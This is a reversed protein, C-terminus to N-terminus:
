PNPAAQEKPVRRARRASCAFRVRSTSVEDLCLDALGIGFEDFQKRSGALKQLSRPAIRDQVTCGGFGHHPPQSWLDLRCDGQALLDAGDKRVASLCGGVILRKRLERKSRYAIASARPKASSIVRGASAFIMSASRKMSRNKSRQRPNAALESVPV